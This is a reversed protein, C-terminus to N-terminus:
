VARVWRGLSSAVSVPSPGRTATETLVTILSMILETIWAGEEWTAQPQTLDRYLSVPMM